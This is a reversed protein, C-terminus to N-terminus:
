RLDVKVSTWRVSTRGARDVVSARLRYLGPEELELALIGSDADVQSSVNRYRDPGPGYLQWIVKTNRWVGKEDHQPSFYVPSLKETVKAEAVLFLPAEGEHTSLAVELGPAEGEPRIPWRPTNFESEEGRTKVLVRGDPKVRIIERYGSLDLQDLDWALDYSVGQRFCREIEAAVRSLVERIQLGSSNRKEYNLPEVWWMPEKSLLTYGPPFLIIVEAARKLRDLDRDPHQQAYTRIFKSYALQESYPVHHGRDGTWFLFYSAGLDYAYTLARYVEPVQFQGYIAIGWDKGTTRAAGRMMGFVMDLWAEQDHTPIQAGTGSNFLALDRSSASRGEYVIGSPAGKENASLQYAGSSLHVEWSWMNEREASMAGLDFDSRSALARQFRLPRDQKSSHHFVDQFRKFVSEVSVESSLGPAKELEDQLAFSTRVAPEDLYDPNPGLYNSRYLAEPIKMTKPNDGSYFVDHFRVLDVHEAPVNFTTQGAALRVPYDSAQYRETEVKSRDFRRESGKDRTDYKAGIELHLPPVIRNAEPVSIPVDIGVSSRHMLHGLLMVRSPFVFSRERDDVARPMLFPWYGHGPLLAMGTESSVYELAPSDSEQFIFRLITKEARDRDPSPYHRLKMWCGFIEGEAKEMELRLWQAGGEWDGWSIKLGVVQSAGVGETVPLAYTAFDGPSGFAQGAIRPVSGLVM